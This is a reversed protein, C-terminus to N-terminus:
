GLCGWAQAYEEDMGGLGGACRIACLCADCVGGCVGAWGGWRVKLAGSQGDFLRRHKNKNRQSLRAVSARPNTPCSMQIRGSGAGAGDPDASLDVVDPPQASASTGNSTHPPHWTSTSPAQLSALVQQLGGRM